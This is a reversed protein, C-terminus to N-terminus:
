GRNTDWLSLHEEAQLGQEKHSISSATEQYFDEAPEWMAATFFPQM